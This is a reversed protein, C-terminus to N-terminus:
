SKVLAIGMPDSGSMASMPDRRPETGHFLWLEVHEVDKQLEAAVAQRYAAFPLYSAQWSTMVTMVEALHLCRFFNPMKPGNM